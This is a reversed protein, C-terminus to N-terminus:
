KISVDLDKAATNLNDRNVKILNLAKNKDKSNLADELADFKSHMDNAYTDGKKDKLPGLINSHYEEHMGELTDGAGKFDDKNVDAEITTLGNLEDQIAKTIQTKGPVSKSQDSQDHTHKQATSCGAQGLGLLLILSVTLFGKVRM